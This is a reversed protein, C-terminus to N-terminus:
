HERDADDPVARNEGPTEYLERNRAEIERMEDTNSFAYALAAHVAAVTIEYSTAIEEPTDGGDVYRQYVHFVGIRHGEIRPDGGLVGDTKVIQPVEGDSSPRDDTGAM